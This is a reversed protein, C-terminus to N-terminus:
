KSKLQKLYKDSADIAANVQSDIATIQKKQDRLYKMVEQHSMGTQDYKFNHMWSEMTDGADHLSKAMVSDALKEETNINPLKILSDLVVTNHELHDDAGMIRDHVAIVSDLVSKEKAKNDACGSLTVFALFILFGNKM